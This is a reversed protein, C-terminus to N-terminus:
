GKCEDASLESPSPPTVCEVCRLIGAEEPHRQKWHLYTLSCRDDCTRVVETIAWSSETFLIHDSYMFSAPSYSLSIILPHFSPAIPSRTNTLVLGSMVM